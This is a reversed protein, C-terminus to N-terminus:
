FFDEDENVVELDRIVYGGFYIEYIKEVGEIIRDDLFFIGDGIEVYIDSDDLYIFILIIVFLLLVVEKVDNNGFGFIFFEDERRKIVEGFVKLVLFGFM